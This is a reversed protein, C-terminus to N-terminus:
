LVKHCIVLVFFAAALFMLSSFFMLICNCFFAKRLSIESFGKKVFFIYIIVVFSM